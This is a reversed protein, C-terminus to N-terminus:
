SPGKIIEIRDINGVAIRSLELTGSTRGIVPEGDILIMTYDSDFGQMQIGMGHNNIIALGTQEALIENLRVMGRDKIEKASIQTVPIPIRDLNKKTRTATIVVEELSTTNRKISDTQAIGSKGLLILFCLLV